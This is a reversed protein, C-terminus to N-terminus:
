APRRPTVLDKLIWWIFRPNRRLQSVAHPLYGKGYPVYVRVAAGNERAWGLSAKMPLGFLLELECPTGAARLRAMAEAALAVDHSAVAVRRARGALRDIVELFGARMDRGPDSPDPWQGKVVRVALGREVAWDADALSRGWRGPLTTGLQERPLRQLMLEVLANSPDAVEPGHSDFHLRVGRAQAAASLEAALKPDFRLAPTKISVYSDQGGKSLRDVAALYEDAVQRATNEPADWLGLTSPFGEGALRGAVTLADEVTEGGVWPRAARQMLPLFARSAGRRIAARVRGLGKPPPPGTDPPFEGPPLPEAAAM